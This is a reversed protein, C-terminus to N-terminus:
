TIITYDEEGRHDKPLDGNIFGVVLYTSDAPLSHIMAAIDSEVVEENEVNNRGAWIIAFPRPYNRSAALFRNKIQTSTEGGWV